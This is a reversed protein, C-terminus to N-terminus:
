KAVDVIGGGKLHAGRRARWRKPFDCEHDRGLLTGPKVEDRRPPPPPCSPGGGELLTRLNSRLRGKPARTLGGKELLTRRVKSALM